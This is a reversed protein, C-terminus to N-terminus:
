AAPPQTPPQTPPQVLPYSVIPYTRNVSKRVSFWYILSCFPVLIVLLLWMTKDKWQDSRKTIDIIALIYIILAAVGLGMAALQLAVVVLFVLIGIFEM